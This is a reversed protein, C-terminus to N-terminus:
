TPPPPPPLEEPKEEEAFLEEAPPIARLHMCIDLPWGLDECIGLPGYAADGIGWMNIVWQIGPVEQPAVLSSLGDLGASAQGSAMPVFAMTLPFIRDPNRNPVEVKVGRPIVLEVLAFDQEAVFLLLPLRPPWSQDFRDFRRDSIWLVLYYGSAPIAVDSIQMAQEAALRAIPFGQELFRLGDRPSAHQLTLFARNGPGLEVPESSFSYVGFALGTQVRRVVAQPRQLFDASVDQPMGGAVSGLLMLLALTTVIKWNRKM